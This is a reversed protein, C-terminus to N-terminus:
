PIASSTGYLRQFGQTVKERFSVDSLYRPDGVMQDLEERSPRDTSPMTHELPIRGEYSERLKMLSRMGAATGGMIKFEEFDEASWVGSRVFGRAWDTMSNIIADANQGLAEREAKLSVQMEKQATTSLESVKAALEDFAGQSLGHKGAWETYAVRLPDNEPIKDGFVDMAYKGDTPAKHKGLKFNKELEGYGKALSELRPEKKEPDWFKEPLYGPRERKAAAAAVAEATTDKVLHEGLGGQNDPDQPADAVPKADSLLGANDSPTEIVAAAAAEAM